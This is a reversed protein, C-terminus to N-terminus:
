IGGCNDRIIDNDNLEVYYIEYAITDALAIFKHYHKPPISCSEGAQLITKDVLDYDNQWHEIMLTGSEVFFFNHKFEHKHKSSFGGNKITIRHVSVNNKNFLESTEGWVKGHKM